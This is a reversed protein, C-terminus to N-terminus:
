RTPSGTATWTESPPTRPPSSCGTGTAPTVIEVQPADTRVDVTVMGRQINGADDRVEACVDQMASSGLTIQQSYDTGTLAEFMAADISSCPGARVDECADGSVTGDVDVQIGATGDDLDDLDTIPDAGGAVSGISIDCPTIDVTWEAVGSETRNGASDVCVGKIRHLGESLDVNGFTAVGSMGVMMAESELAGADDGDIVLRMNEGVGDADTTVEFDTQFGAADSTDDDQNLYATGTDPATISCSLGECDVFIDAPYTERCTVGDMNEVEVEVTNPTDGRNDLGISSFTAVTGEVNVEGRSSGNVYITAPQGDGANTSVVFSTQFTAGCAEGDTDASPGLTLRTGAPTMPEVFSITACSTDVEITVKASSVGCSERACAQLEHSGASLTVAGFDVMDSDATATAIPVDAETPMDEAVDLYLEVTEGDLNTSQALVAIQLGDTDLDADDALTLRAGDEPDTIRLTATGSPGDDSCDCGVVPFSLVLTAAVLGRLIGVSRSRYAM